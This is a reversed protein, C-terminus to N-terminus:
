ARKKIPVINKERRKVLVLEHGLVRSVAMLSAFQPRRTAGGFWNRLTGSSVGSMASIDSYKEGSDQVVTRLKDIIPDKEKFMYSKYIKM